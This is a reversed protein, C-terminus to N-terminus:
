GGCVLVESRRRPVLLLPLGLVVQLLCLLFCVPLRLPVGVLLVDQVVELVLGPVVVLVLGLVVQVVLSSSLRGSSSGFLVQTAATSGSRPVVKQVGHVVRLFSSSLRPAPSLLLRFCVAVGELLRGVTRSLM